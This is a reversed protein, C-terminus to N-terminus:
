KAARALVLGQVNQVDSVCTLSLGQLRPIRDVIDTLALGSFSHTFLVDIFRLSRSQIPKVDRGSESEREYQQEPEPELDEVTLPEEREEDRFMSVYTLDIGVQAPVTTQDNEAVSEDGSVNDQRGRRRERLGEEVVEKLREVEGALREVEARLAEVEAQTERAAYTDARM